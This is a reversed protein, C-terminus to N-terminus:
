CSRARRTHIRRKAALLDVGRLLRLVRVIGKSALSHRGPLPVGTAFYTTANSADYGYFGYPWDESNLM